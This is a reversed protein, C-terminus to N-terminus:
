SELLAHPLIIALSFTCWLTSVDSIQQCSWYDLRPVSVSYETSPTVYFAYTYIQQIGSAVLPHCSWITIEREREREIEEERKERQTPKLRFADCVKEMGEQTAKGDIDFAGFM